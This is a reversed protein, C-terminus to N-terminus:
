GADRVRHQGAGEQDEGDRSAAKRPGLRPLAMIAM